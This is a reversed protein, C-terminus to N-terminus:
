HIGLVYHKSRSLLERACKDMKTTYCVGSLRFSESRGSIKVIYIVVMRGELTDWDIKQSPSEIKLDAEDLSGVRRVEKDKRIRDELASRFKITLPDEGPIRFAVTPKAPAAGVSSSAGTAIGLLLAIPAILKM